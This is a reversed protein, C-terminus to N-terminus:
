QENADSSEIGTDDEAEDDEADEEFGIDQLQKILNESM